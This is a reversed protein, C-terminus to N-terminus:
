PLAPPVTLVRESSSTDAARAAARLLRSVVRAHFGTPLILARYVRGHPGPFAAHTVARLRGGDLDFSLRYRAFRHTGELVLRRGREEEVVRFGVLPASDRVGVVRGFTRSGRSGGFSRRLVSWLAEWVADPAARTEVSHEDVYPLTM